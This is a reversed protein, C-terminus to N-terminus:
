IPKHEDFFGSRQIKKRSGESIVPDEIIQENVTQETVTPERATQAEAPQEADNVTQKAVALTQQKGPTLVVTKM